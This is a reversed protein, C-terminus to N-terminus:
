RSVNITIKESLIVPEHPIHRYDAFILQLSHKGPLLELVVETQGGGYHRHREDAAIPVDMSIPQDVDILLHHHGTNDQETGAPAVGMESLGFQIKVLSKVAEGNKPSIIYVKAAAPARTRVLKEAPTALPTEACGNTTILVTMMVVGAMSIQHM